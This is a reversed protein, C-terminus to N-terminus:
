GKKHQWSGSGSSSTSFSASSLNIEILQHVINRIKLESLYQSNKGWLTWTLFRSINGPLGTVFFFFFLFTREFNSFIRLSSLGRFIFSDLTASCWPLVSSKSPSLVTLFDVLVKTITLCASLSAIFAAKCAEMFTTRTCSKKRKDKLYSIYPAWDLHIINKWKILFQVTHRKYDLRNMQHIKESLRPKTHPVISKM